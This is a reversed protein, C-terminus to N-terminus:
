GTVDARIISYCFMDSLAGQPNRRAHRYLAERQMGSHEAVRQSAVNLVDCTLWLREFNMQELYHQIVARVSESIFGRGQIVESGWYGICASPIAWDISSLGVTGVFTRTDDPTSQTHRSVSEAADICWLGDTCWLGYTASSGVLFDDHSRQCFAEQDALTLDPKVWSAWAALYHYSRKMEEFLFPADARTIQRLALRTTDIHAPLPQKM